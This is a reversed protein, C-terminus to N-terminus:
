NRQVECAVWEALMKREAESPRPCDRALPGGPTNPCREPPMSTNTAAPGSGAQEDIHGPIQLVGELDDYDHFIPAGNRAASRLSASHCTTCYTTMFSQGFSEWTLTGPDPDPCRAGTPTPVPTNTCAVLVLGLVFVFFPM